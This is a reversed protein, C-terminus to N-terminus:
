NIIDVSGVLCVIIDISRGPVCVRAANHLKWWMLARCFCALVANYESFTQVCVCMNLIANKAHEFSNHFLISNVNKAAFTRIYLNILEFSYIFQIIYSCCCCCGSMNLCHYNIKIKISLVSFIRELSM